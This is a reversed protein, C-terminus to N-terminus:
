GPPPSMGPLLVPEGAGSRRPRGAPAACLTAYTDAPCPARSGGTCPAACRVLARRCARCQLARWRSARAARGAHRRPARPAHTPACQLAASALYDAIARLAEDQPLRALPGGGGGSGKGLRQGLGLGAESKIRKLADPGARVGRPLAALPADPEGAPAAGHAPGPEPAGAPPPPADLPASSQEVDPPREMYDLGLVGFPSRV